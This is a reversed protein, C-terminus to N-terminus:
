GIQGIHGLGYIFPKCLRCPCPNPKWNKILSQFKDLNSTNKIDTPILKWISYGFYRLSDKGFYQSNVAPISFESISRLNPGNYEREVFIDKLLTPGINNLSKYMEIALFQINRQHVTFSGDMELLETFTSTDNNYLVRLAREHIRNIKSNEKRNHFMWVLPSFSFQSHVFSILLTRLKEFSFINRHRAIATLKGGAKKCLKAIHSKFKFNSDILIGLLKEEDSSEIIEDGVKISVKEHKLGAILLHCKDANFKMYNDEFWKIAKCSDQELNDLVTQLIPDSKHLTTDDAYNCADTSEFILFLDNLYINFLLPGLVSGQPVGTILESWSSFSTNIKTRQWRNKLYDMILCLSDKGFGYANLKAILLDHNLCDFAKSLDM